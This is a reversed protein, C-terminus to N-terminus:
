LFLCSDGYSLFRFDNDLAYQYAEKWKDGIFASVLLLLTSQPQHFNTIMGEVIKYNYGPAIMLQTSGHIFEMKNQTMLDLIAQLAEKATPLDNIQYPDWQRVDIIDSSLGKMIKTGHWYLSELTRVSTTGVAILKSYKHELINQINDKCIFIQEHHMSHDKIYEADVPKFTGAGVHLTVYSRTIGKQSLKEFVKDTFHLGATPAAVSGDHEAYITQYRDVDNKNAERHIYPPLPIKGIEELIHAFSLHEPTWSFKVHFADECKEVLEAQLQYERDENITKLVLPGSKWKKANGIFCKWVMEKTQQFAQQIETVPSVPELVFLEIKAGTPKRFNLRARVVKTNNFFLNANDPLHVPINSFADEGINGDKVTLLKSQDRQELPFFAIKEEPLDYNYDKIQINEVTM